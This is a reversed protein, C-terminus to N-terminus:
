QREGELELGPLVVGLGLGGGHAAHGGPHYPLSTPPAAAFMQQQQQHHGQQQQHHHPHSSHSYSPYGGSGGIPSRRSGPSFPSGASGPVPSHPPLHTTDLRPMSAYPSPMPPLGTLAAAQAPITYPSSTTSLPYISALSEPITRPGASHPHHQHHTSYAHYATTDTDYGGHSTHPSDPAGGGGGDVMRARKHPPKPQDDYTTYGYSSASTYEGPRMQPSESYYSGQSGM